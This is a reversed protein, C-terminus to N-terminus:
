AAYLAAGVVQTSIAEHLSDCSSNAIFKTVFSVISDYMGTRMAKCGSEMTLFSLFVLVAM